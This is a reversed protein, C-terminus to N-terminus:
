NITVHLDGQEEGCMAGVADEAENEGMLISYLLPPKGTTIVVYITALAEAVGPVFVELDPYVISDYSPEGGARALMCRVGIPAQM